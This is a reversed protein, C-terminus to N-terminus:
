PMRRFLEILLNSGLYVHRADPAIAVFKDTGETFVETERCGEGGFFDECGFRGPLQRLAGTSARRFAAMGISTGFYVNRGDPSVAARLPDPFGRASACPGGDWAVCGRRGLLQRLPGDPSQRFVLVRDSERQPIYISRADPSMVVSTPLSLGRAAACRLRARLQRRGRAVLCGHSAGPQRLEGSRLRRFIAIRGPQPLTAAVYVRRGDPASTIATAGAIGRAPTCGEDGGDSLCGRMGHAQRLLGNRTNRSFVAVAGDGHLGVSTSSAAYVNRGNPSVAVAEPYAFGGRTRRCPSRFQSVCARRRFGQRLRGTVPDRRLITISRSNQAAVYVHRGDPSIALGRIGSM